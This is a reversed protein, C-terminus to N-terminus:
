WGEEGDTRFARVGAMDHKIGILSSTFFVYMSFTKCYHILVPGIVVPPRHTRCCKLLLYCYTIPMVDFEGLCFTPDVTVISFNHEFTAFRVLDQLQYDRAVVIAPEPVAKLDRVFLGVHDGLKAQQMMVFLEDALNATDM